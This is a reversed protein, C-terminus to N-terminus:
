ILVNLDTYIARMGQRNLVCAAIKTGNSGVFSAFACIGIFVFVPNLTCSCRASDAAYWRCNVLGFLKNYLRTIEAM